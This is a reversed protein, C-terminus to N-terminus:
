LPLISGRGCGPFREWKALSLMDLNEGQFRGESYIVFVTKAM